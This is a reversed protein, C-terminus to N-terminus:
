SGTNRRLFVEYRFKDSRQFSLFRVGLGRVRERTPSTARVVEGRVRIPLGPEGPLDLELDVATGRAITKSTRILAGTESLNVSQFSTWRQEDPASLRVPIRVERRRSVGILAGVADRLEMEPADVSLVRNAGRGVLGAADSMALAPALLVLGAHRCLSHEGRLEALFAATDMEPVPFACLLVRFPYWRIAELAAAGSPQAVLDLDEGHLYGRLRSLDQAPLGVVLVAGGAASTDGPPLAEKSRAVNVKVLRAGVALDLLTALAAQLKRMEDQSYGERLMVAGAAQIEARTAALLNSHPLRNVLERMLELCAEADDPGTREVLDTRLQDLLTLLTALPSTM